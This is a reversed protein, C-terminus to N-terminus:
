NGAALVFSAAGPYQRSPNRQMQWDATEPAIEAPTQLPFKSVRALRQSASPHNKLLVDLTEAQQNEIKKKM